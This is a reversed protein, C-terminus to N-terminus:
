LAADIRRRDAGDSVPVRERGVPEVALHAFLVPRIWRRDILAGEILAIRHQAAPLRRHDARRTGRLALESDASRQCDRRIRPARWRRSSRRAIIGFTTIFGILTPPRTARSRM